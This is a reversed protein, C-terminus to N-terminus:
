GISWPCLKVFKLMQNQIELPQCIEVRQVMKLIGVDTESDNSGNLSMCIPCLQIRKYIKMGKM